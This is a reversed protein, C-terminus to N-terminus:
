DSRETITAAVWALPLGDADVPWEDDPLFDALDQELRERAVASAEDAMGTIYHVTERGDEWTVLARVDM